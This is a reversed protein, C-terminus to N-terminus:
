DIKGGFRFGLHLEVYCFLCIAPIGELVCPWKESEPFYPLVSFQSLLRM